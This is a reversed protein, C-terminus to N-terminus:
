PRFERCGYAGSDKWEIMGSGEQSNELQWVTERLLVDRAWDPALNLHNLVGAVSRAIPSPRQNPQEADCLRALCWGALILLLVFSLIFALRRM